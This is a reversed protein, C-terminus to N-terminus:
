NLVGRAMVTGCRRGAGRRASAAAARWPAPDGQGLRHRPAGNVFVMEVGESQALPNEYTAVDRFASRISCSSIPSGGARVQGRQHLRFNRASLGTM